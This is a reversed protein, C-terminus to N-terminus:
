PITKMIERYARRIAPLGVTKTEDGDKSKYAFTLSEGDFDDVMLHNGTALAGMVEDFPMERQGIIDRLLEKLPGEHGKKKRGKASQKSAQDRDIAHDFMSRMRKENEIAKEIEDDTLGSDKLSDRLYDYEGM